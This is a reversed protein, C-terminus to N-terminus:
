LDVTVNALIGYVIPVVGNVIFTGPAGSFKLKGGSREFYTQSGDSLLQAGNQMVYVFVGTRENMVTLSNNDKPIMAEMEHCKLVFQRYALANRSLNAIPTNINMIQGNVTRLTGFPGTWIRESAVSGPGETGNTMKLIKSTNLDARLEWNGHSVYVDRSNELRFEGGGSKASVSNNTLRANMSCLGNSANIQGRKNQLFVSFNGAAHAMRLLYDRTPYYITNSGGANYMHIDNPPDVKIWGRTSNELVYFTSPRILMRPRVGRYDETLTLVIDDSNRHEFVTSGRATLIKITNKILTLQGKNEEISVNAVINQLMTANATLTRSSYRSEYITIRIETVNVTIYHDYVGKLVILGDRSRLVTTGNALSIFANRNSVSSQVTIQGVDGAEDFYKFDEESVTLYAPVDPLNATIVSSQTSLSQMILMKETAPLLTQSVSAKTQRRPTPPAHTLPISTNAELVCWQLVLLFKDDSAKEAYHWFQIAGFVILMTVLVTLGYTFLTIKWSRKLKENSTLDRKRSSTWLLQNM